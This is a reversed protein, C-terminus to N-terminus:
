QGGCQDNLIFRLMKAAAQCRNFVQYVFNHDDVGARDVVGRFYRATKSRTQIAERPIFIEGGRAIVPQIQDAAVPNEIDIGILPGEGAVKRGDALLEGIGSVGGVFHQEPRPRV